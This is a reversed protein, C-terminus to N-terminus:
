ACKSIKCVCRIGFMGFVIPDISIDAGRADDETKLVGMGHVNKEITPLGTVELVATDELTEVSNGFKVPLDPTTKPRHLLSRSAASCAASNVHGMVPRESFGENPTQIASRRITSRPGSVSDERKRKAIRPNALVELKRIVQEYIAKRLVKKADAGKPRDRPRPLNKCLNLCGEVAELYQSSEGRDKKVQVIQVLKAWSELNEKMESQIPMNMEEGFEIELLLRAFSLLTPNGPGFESLLDETEPRCRRAPRLAVYLDGWRSSSETSYSVFYLNGPNWSHAALDIDGDVFESLCRALMLAIEAKETLGVKKKLAETDFDQITMQSFLKERLLKDLGKSEQNSSWRLKMKNTVNFV